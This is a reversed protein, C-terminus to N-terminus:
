SCLSSTFRSKQHINQDRLIDIVLGRLGMLWMPENNYVM